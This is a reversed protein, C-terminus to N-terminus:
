KLDFNCVPVGVFFKVWSFSKGREDMKYFVYDVFGCVLVIFAIIILIYEVHLIRNNNVDDIEKRVFIYERYTNIIYILLIIMFFLVNPFLQSKSSIFFILYLFVSYVLTHLTNGSLWNNSQATERENDFDWGGEFMIFVFVMIIGVIHRAFISTKLWKQTQCSLIDTIFGSSIIVFILVVFVFQGILISFDKM